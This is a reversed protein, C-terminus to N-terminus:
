SEPSSKARVEQSGFGSERIRVVTQMGTDAGPPLALFRPLGGVPKAQLVPPATELREVTGARSVIVLGVEGDTGGTGALVHPPASPEANAKAKGAPAGTAARYLSLEPSLTPVVLVDKLLFPGGAPRFGLPQMWRQHGNGRNLARLVNDLAVFYVRDQDVAPTGTVQGGTRWRWREDGDKTDLCYLHNDEAGVFLRDDLARLATPRGGLKREWIPGGDALRRAAVRGDALLVYVRDGTMAAPALLPAGLAQRWLLTGDAAKLMLAEGDATGALLWGGDWALAAALPEGAPFHWVGAGTAASRADVAEGTVLFVFSDGAAVAAADAPLSWALEGRDLSVAAVRGDRLPVFASRADFAPPASPPAPLTTAWAAVLVIAPPAAAAQAAPAPPAAPPRAPPGPRVGQAAPLAALGLVILTAPVTRRTPMRM